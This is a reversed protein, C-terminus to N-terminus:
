KERQFRCIIDRKAGRLSPKAGRYNRLGHVPQQLPQSEHSPQPELHVQAVRLEEESDLSGLGVGLGVADPVGWVRPEVHEDGFGM